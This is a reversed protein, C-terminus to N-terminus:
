RALARGYIRNRAVDNAASPKEAIILEKTMAHEPKRTPLAILLQDTGRLL